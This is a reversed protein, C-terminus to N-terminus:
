YTWITATDLWDADTYEQAKPHSGLIMRLTRVGDCAQSIIERQQQYHQQDFSDEDVKHAPNQRLRRIKKFSAIMSEILTRDDIRYKLNLWEDLIQITGKQRVVIKGDGRVEDYEFAIDKQFFDRNINDSLMKDLLHIFDNYSKLTPRILFTFGRPKKGEKYENRFLPPRGILRSINNIHSIEEIFADFVSIGEYWDGIISSRYYDPHLKYDGEVTRANWIQQHEPNMRALYTLYVAVARNKQEDYCFGYHELFTDDSPVIGAQDDSFYISGSIDDDDYRYRPDNRYYELVRPDFKEFILKPEGLVLRLTFPRNKYPETDVIKMLHAPTPYVCSQELNEAKRAKRLQEEISDEPFAKIHPNPHGDGFVLCVMGDEILSFLIKRLIIKRIHLSKTMGRVPLGNFDGSNLYYNTVVQLVNEKKNSM